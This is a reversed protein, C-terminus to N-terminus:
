QKQKISEGFQPSGIVFANLKKRTEELIERKEILLKLNEVKEIKQELTLEPVPPPTPVTTEVIPKKQEETKPTEEKATLM